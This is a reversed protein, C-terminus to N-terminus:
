FFHKAPPFTGVLLVLMLSSNSPMVAFRFLWSGLRRSLGDGTGAFGDGTGALDGVGAAVLELASAPPLAPPLSPPLAPSLAPPLPRRRFASAFPTRLVRFLTSAFSAGFSMALGARFPSDGPGRTKIASLPCSSGVRRCFGSVGLCDGTGSGVSLRGRMLVGVGLGGVGCGVGRGELDGAGLSLTCSAGVFSCTHGRGQEYLTHLSSIM